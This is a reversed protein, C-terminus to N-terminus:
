NKTTIFSDIGTTKRKETYAWESLKKLNSIDAANYRVLKDLADMNGTRKYEKWLLVADYGNLGKLDDEREFGFQQEIKKLGGRVNLSALVFRLDIHLTPIKANPYARKIFPLDFLSGNFTVVMEYNAIEKEFDDLNQGHIYSKVQEGDFLGVVTMYDDGRGLGTTEIDVYAVRKFHPFARWTENKPLIIGFHESEAKELAAKSNRIHRAPGQCHVVEGFRALYDDWELIGAEWLKREKNPGFNPIHIFTNQLM